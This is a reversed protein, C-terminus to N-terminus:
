FVGMFGFPFFGKEEKEKKIEKEFIKLMNIAASVEL